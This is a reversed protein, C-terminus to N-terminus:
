RTLQTRQEQKRYGILNHVSTFIVTIIPLKSASQQKLFCKRQNSGFNQNISRKSLSKFAEAGKKVCFIKVFTTSKKLSMSAILYVSSLHFSSNKKTSFNCDLKLLGMGYYRLFNLKGSSSSLRLSLESSFINYM